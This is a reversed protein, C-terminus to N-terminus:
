ALIIYFGKIIVNMNHLYQKLTIKNNTAYKKLLIKFKITSVFIYHGSNICKTISM